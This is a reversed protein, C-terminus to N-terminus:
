TQTGADREFRLNWRRDGGYSVDTQVGIESKASRRAELMPYDGDRQSRAIEEDDLQYNTSTAEDPGAGPVQQGGYDNTDRMPDIGTADEMIALPEETNDQHMRSVVSREHVLSHVRSIPASESSEVMVSGLPIHDVNMLDQDIAAVIM